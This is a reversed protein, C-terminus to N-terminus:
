DSIKIYKKESATNYADFRVDLCSECIDFKVKINSVKKYGRKKLLDKVFALISKETFCTNNMVFSVKNDKIEYQEMFEKYISSCDEIEVKNLGEKALKDALENYEQGSHGKVKKFVIRINESYKQILAVYELTGIKSASWEGKAWSAIGEYDHYIRISRYNNQMAWEIARIAAELEGAVNRMDIYKEDCSSGNITHIIQGDRLIVCGYAYRGLIENFSGDVYAEIETKETEDNCEELYKNAEAESEFSKYKADSFGAVQLKCEDWSYFIGTKRGKKVAYYKM